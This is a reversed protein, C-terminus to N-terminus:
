HQPQVPRNTSSRTYVAAWRRFQTGRPSRVRYGVALVMELRYHKTQYPKGDAATILYDKIVSDADLEGEDLIHMVHQNINPVSTEFLDAMMKQSMWCTEGDVLIRVKAKGDETNYMLFDSIRVDGMVAERILM